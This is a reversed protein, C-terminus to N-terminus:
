FYDRSQTSASPLMRFAHMIWFHRAAGGLKKGDHEGLKRVFKLINELLQTSVARDTFRVDIGRQAMHPQSQELTIDLKLDGFSENCADFFFRKAFGHEAANRGALLDDFNKM